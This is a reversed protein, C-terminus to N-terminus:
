ADPAPADLAAADPKPADPPPPPPADPMEIPSDPPAPPSDPVEVPSDPTEVSPADPMSTPSDPTIIPSDPPLVPSDPTRPADPVDCPLVTGNSVLHCINDTTSCVYNDPCEMTPGCKFSCSPQPTSYCATALALSACAALSRIV